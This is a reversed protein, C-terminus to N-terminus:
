RNHPLLKIAETARTRALSRGDDEREPLAFALRLTHRGSGIQCPDTKGPEQGSRWQSISIGTAELGPEARRYM